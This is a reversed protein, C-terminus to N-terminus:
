GTAFWLTHREWFQPLVMGSEVSCKLIWCCRGISWRALGNFACSKNEKRLFRLDRCSKSAERQRTQSNESSCRMPLPKSHGQAGPVSTCSKHKKPQKKNPRNSWVHVDVEKTMNSATHRTANRTTHRNSLEHINAKTM